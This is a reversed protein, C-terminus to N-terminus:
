ILMFVLSGLVYSNNKACYMNKAKLFVIAENGLVLKILCSTRVADLRWFIVGQLRVCLNILAEFCDEARNEVVLMCTAPEDM